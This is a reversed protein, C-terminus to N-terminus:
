FAKLIQKVVRQDDEIQETSSSEKTTKKLIFECNPDLGDLFQYQQSGGDRCAFVGIDCEYSIFINLAKQLLSVSDGFSTIGIVKKRYEFVCFFDKLGILQGRIVGVDVNWFNTRQNKFFKFRKIEQFQLVESLLVRLSTSKGSDNPGSVAIIKM